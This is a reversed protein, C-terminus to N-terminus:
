CGIRQRIPLVADGCWYLRTRPNTQTNLPFLGLRSCRQHLDKMTPSIYSATVLHKQHQLCHKAIKPHLIAPLLSNMFLVPILVGAMFSPLAANVCRAVIDAGAVLLGVASNDAIDVPIVTSEGEHGKVLARAEAANNSAVILELDKNRSWITECFPKAVMGSGFLLVKKRRKIVTTPASSPQSKLAALSDYLWKHRPMLEGDKAITARDLAELFATDEVPVGNWGNGGGGTSSLGQTRRHEQRVLARLYPMLANSFHASADLPIETPLIDIAM